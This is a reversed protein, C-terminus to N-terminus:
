VHPPLHLIGQVKQVVCVVRYRRQTQPIAHRNPHQYTSLQQRNPQTVQQADRRRIIITTAIMKRIHPSGSNQGYGYEGALDPIPSGMEEGGEM